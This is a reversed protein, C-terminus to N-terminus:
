VGEMWTRVGTERIVRLGCREYLARARNERLLRIRLPLGLERAREIAGRVLFEGFGKGQHSPLIMIEHLRLHDEEVTMLMGGIRERGTEVVEYSGLAWKRAFSRRVSEEDWDGFQKEVVDRFAQVTVGWLFERDSETAPRRTIEVCERSM